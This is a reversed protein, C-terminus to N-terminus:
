YGKDKLRKEFEQGIKMGWEQGIQMSEQMILPTKQAFKIGVPTEYFEILKMLDDRTMHKHYVPALMDVLEDMSTKMFDQELEAMVNAPVQQSQKFMAFMQSIASKYAAESGSVEFMKKLTQKYETEAQGFLDIAFCLAFVLVLPFRKM